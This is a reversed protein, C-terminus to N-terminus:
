ATNTRYHADSMLVCKLPDLGFAEVIRAPWPPDHLKLDAYITFRDTRANAVIRGRPISDYGHSMVVEPIGRQRRERGTLGRWREWVDAHGRPHTLCDGYPEAETIPMRELLLTLGDAHPVRWFIGLHPMPTIRTPQRPEPLRKPAGPASSPEVIEVDGIESLGAPRTAGTGDKEDM